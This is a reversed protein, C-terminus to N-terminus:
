KKREQLPPATVVITGKAANGALAQQNRDSVIKNARGIEGRSAHKIQVSLIFIADDIQQMEFAKLSWTGLHEFRHLSSELAALGREVMERNDDLSCLGMGCLERSINFLDVLRGWNLACDEGKKFADFADTAIKMFDLREQETLASANAMAVQMANVYRPRPKHRKKM